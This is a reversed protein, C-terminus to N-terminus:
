DKLKTEPAFAGLEAGRYLTARAASEAPVPLPLDICAEARGTPAPGERELVFTAFCVQEPMGSVTPAPAGEYGYGLIRHPELDLLRSFVSAWSACIYPVSEGPAIEQQGIMDDSADRLRLDFFLRQRTVRWLETLADVYRPEWHLWGLAQVVDAFRDPLQLGQVSNGVLFDCEPHLQQAADILSPSIDVGTYRVTPNAARWITSLGGAACGVDLVSESSRALWPLFRLESPYLDDITNRHASFFEVLSPHEFRQM